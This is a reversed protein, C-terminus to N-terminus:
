GSTSSSLPSRAFTERNMEYGLHRINRGLAEVTLERSTLVAGIKEIARRSRLNNEGIWFIARPFTKLAHVLMLRKMDHNHPGGWLRKALFTSGIEVEDSAVTKQSFRSYGCIQGSGREIAVHGGGDSFHSDINQRFLDRQYRESVPHGAWIEPDSAVAYLSEFDEETMPRLQLLAGTLIPQFDFMQHM